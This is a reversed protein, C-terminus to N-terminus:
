SIVNGEFTKYIQGSALKLRLAGDLDIDHFMGSIRQKGDDVTVLGNHSKKSLWIDRIDNFGHFHWKKYYFDFSSMIMDLLYDLSLSKLGKNRLNTTSYVLGTPSKTLNVGIGIILKNLSGVKLTELLIGSVKEGDIQIDNPWKLKINLALKDRKAALNIADYVALSTIYTFQAQREQFDTSDMLISMFLNGTLSQWERGYRGRGKSQQYAWIVYDDEVGLQALRKAEANTSDIDNFIHLNYKKLWNLRM